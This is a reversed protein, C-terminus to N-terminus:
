VPRNGIYMKAQQTVHCETLDIIGYFSQILFPIVRHSNLICDVHQQFYIQVQDIFHM